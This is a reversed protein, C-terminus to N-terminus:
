GNSAARQARRYRRPRIERGKPDPGRSTPADKNLIVKGLMLYAKAHTRNAHLVQTAFEYVQNRAERREASDKTSLYCMWAAYLRYETVEPQLAVAEGFAIRAEQNQSQKLRQKGRQFAKEAQLKAQKADIAEREPASREPRGDLLRDRAARLHDVIEDAKQQVDPAAERQMEDSGYLKLREEFAEEVEERTAGEQVELVERDSRGKIRLYVSMVLSRLGHAASGPEESPSPSDPVIPEVAPLKGTTEFEPDDNLQLKDALTIAALIQGAHIRDLNSAQHLQEINKKGDIGELFLVERKTLAFLKGM